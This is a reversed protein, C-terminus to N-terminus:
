IGQILQKGCDICYNNRDKREKAHKEESCNKIPINRNVVDGCMPCFHVSANARSHNFNPCSNRQVM